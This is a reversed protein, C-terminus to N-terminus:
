TAEIEFTLDRVQDASPPVNTRQIVQRKGQLLEPHRPRKEPAERGEFRGRAVLDAVRDGTP